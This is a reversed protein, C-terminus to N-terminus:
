SGAMGGFPFFVFASSASSKRELRSLRSAGSVDLGGGVPSAVRSEVSLVRLDREAELSSGLLAAAFGM